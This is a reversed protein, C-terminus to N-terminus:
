SLRSRMVTRRAREVIPLDLMRGDFMVAGRGSRLSEDFADLVRQAELVAQPSPAFVQNVADVQNPHICVAGAMGLARGRSVSATFADRDLIAALSGPIGMPVTRTARAAIVIASAAYSLSETTPEVGLSLALDESGLILGIVRDGAALAAVNVVAEPTEILLLLRTHGEPMGCRQEAAALALGAQKVDDASQVKPLVLADVDPSVAAAIDQMNQPNIRVLVHEVGLRKLEVAAQGVAGRAADKQDPSISDELDLIIGGAGRQNAKAIFRQENAPIFLLTRCQELEEVNLSM